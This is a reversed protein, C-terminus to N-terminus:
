WSCKNDLVFDHVQIKGIAIKNKLEEIKKRMEDTILPANNEDFSLGVANQAVGFSKVNDRWIGRRSHVLAAYIVRDMRKFMSSLVHGPYLGNQNRDVGIGLKGRKAVVELVAPGAGGAAQFVVDAGQNMLKDAVKAAAPGDFWVGPYRGVFGTLVNIDPDIYKAGQEYGCAFRRMLPMDSISVFGVIKSKSNMAALAGALFSGEHEAFDFSFLNPEDILKGLALFRISSYERVYLNLDKLHDAYILVVPSYGKACVEELADLYDKMQLGVVIEKVALGTAKSFEEVGEHINLNYDNKNIEGQYIVVPRFEDAGFALAAMGLVFVLTIILIRIYSM